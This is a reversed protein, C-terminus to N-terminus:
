FKTVLGFSFHFGDKGHFLNFQGSAIQAANIWFGGGYSNHWKNSDENPVWVRGVDGGGFVGLQLPLFSTRIENFVYRIDANGALTSKGTFRERRYGRLGSQAGLHAAQYFNFDEKFRLQSQVQTRLVLRRSQSLPNFFELSPNLSFFNDSSTLDQTFGANLDFNMGKAPALKDDYSEYQYTTEANLFHQNSFFDEDSLELDDGIADISRGGTRKVKLANYNM